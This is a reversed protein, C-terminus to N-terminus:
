KSTTVVVSGAPLRIVKKSKWDYIVIVGNAKGLYRLSESRLEAPLDNAGLSTLRVPIARVHLDASRFSIPPRVTEGREVKDALNRAREPLSLFFFSGVLLVTPLVIMWFPGQVFVIARRWLPANRPVNAPRIVGLARLGLYALVMISASLLVLVLTALSTQALIETQGLGVEEPEVDFRGYFTAYSGRLVGYVVLGAVTLLALLHTAVWRAVRSLLSEPQDIAM